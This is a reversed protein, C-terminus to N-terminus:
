SRHKVLLEQRFESAISPASRVCDRARQISERVAELHRGTIAAIEGLSFGEIGYLLFAERDTREAGRLAAQVLAIVEDSYAAQEPTSLRRDPITSERTWREDPQHFQLGAEDSAEVNQRRRSDELHVSLDLEQLRVTMENMAELALRYLWPELSLKEPRDHDGLARAIVEDVVEATSLGDESIPLDDDARRFRLERDVFRELRGLNANVYSGIDDVSITPPMVAALTQEFPVGLEPSEQSGGRWHRWKHSSRLMEKHRGLQQMLEDFAAKIAGTPSNAKKESALQGSPLRLNLGVVIGERASNQDIVAKLHILEPRFVQLRKQIKEIQHNVEKEIDPTKHVKYSVHVNM